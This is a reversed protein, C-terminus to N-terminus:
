SDSKVNNNSPLRYKLCYARKRTRVTPGGSNEELFGIVLLTRIKIDVRRQIMFYDLFEGDIACPLETKLRNFRFAIHTTV